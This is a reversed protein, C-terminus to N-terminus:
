YLDLTNLGRRIPGELARAQDSEPAPFLLQFYLAQFFQRTNHLRAMGKESDFSSRWTTGYLLGSIWDELKETPYDGRAVLTTIVRAMREPENHTYFVEQDPAVKSSLAALLVDLDQQTTRPNEAIRWLVDAAHAVGHMWGETDTRARLDKEGTLHVAIGEVVGSFEADLLFRSRADRRMVESLILASFTRRFVSSTGQEGLGSKLGALLATTLKRAGEDTLAGGRLWSAYIEYGLNDRLVPDPSALCQVLVDSLADASQGEPLQGSRVNQWFDADYPAKGCQEQAFAPLSLLVLTLLWKKM